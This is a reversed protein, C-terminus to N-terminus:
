AEGGAREAIRAKDEDSFGRLADLRLGTSAGGGPRMQRQSSTPSSAGAHSAVQVKKQQAQVKPLTGGAPAQIGFVTQHVKTFIRQYDKPDSPQKYIAFEEKFRGWLTGDPDKEPLYEPHKELFSDLADQAKEAYTNGQLEDKRVFGLGEALAPLVEKLADLQEKPYKALIAQAAESIQAPASAPAGPRITDMIEGTREKRLLGRTKTLEVRMAFERPSEDPLRKLGMPNSLDTGPLVPAVGEAPAATGPTTEAPPTQSRVVGEPRGDPSEDAPDNNPDTGEPEEGPVIGEPHEPTIVEGGEAPEVEVRETDQVTGENIEGTM